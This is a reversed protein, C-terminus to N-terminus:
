QAPWITPATDELYKIGEDVTMSNDLIVMDWMKREVNQWAAIYFSPNTEIAVDLTEYAIKFNENEAWFDQMEKSEGCSYTVPLYGTSICNQAMQEDSVLFKLFEWSAEIQEETNNASVIVMNSGGTSSTGKGRFGPIQAIGVDVGNEKCQKMISKMSGCSLPMSALEGSTFANKINDKPNTATYKMITGDNVGALWWEALEKYSGDDLSLPRLGDNSVDGVGNISKTWGGQIFDVDTSFSIGPKGTKEKIQKLVDSFEHIDAPIEECGVEKFIDKNYYLVSCSRIYPMALLQGDFYMGPSFCSRINDLDFGDREALPQMDALVGEAAMEGVTTFGLLAVQPNDGAAISTALKTYVEKNEGVFEENVTIGMGNTENFEAVVRQMEELQNGAARSHWVTITVPEKFRSDGTEGTESADAAKAATTEAAATNGTDSSKSEEAKGGCAALSATMASVLILASIKRLFQKRM